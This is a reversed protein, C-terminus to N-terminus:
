KRELTNGIKKDVQEMWDVRLGHMILTHLSDDTDRNAEAGSGQWRVSEKEGIMNELNGGGGTRSWVYLQTEQYDSEEGLVWNM